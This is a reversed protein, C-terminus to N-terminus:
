ISLTFIPTPLWYEPSHYIIQQCKYIRGLSTKFEQHNGGHKSFPYFFVCSVLCQLLQVLPALLDNRQM